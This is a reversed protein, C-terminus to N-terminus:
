REGRVGVGINEMGGRMSVTEKLDLKEKDVDASSGCCVGDICPRRSKGLFQDKPFPCRSLLCMFVKLLQRIHCQRTNKSM